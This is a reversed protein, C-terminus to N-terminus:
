FLVHMFELSVDVSSNTTVMRILRPAPGLGAFSTVRVQALTFTFETPTLYFTAVDLTECVSDSIM